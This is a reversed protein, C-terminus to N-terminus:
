HRFDGPGQTTKGRLRSVPRSAPPGVPASDTLCKRM